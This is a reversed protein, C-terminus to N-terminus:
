RCFLAILSGTIVAASSIFFLKIATGARSYVWLVACLLLTAVFLATLAICIWLAVGICFLAAVLAVTLLLVATVIFNM